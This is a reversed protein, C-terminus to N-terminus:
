LFFGIWVYLLDANLINMNSGDRSFGLRILMFSAADFKWGMGAKMGFIGLFMIVGIDIATDTALYSHDKYWDVPENIMVPIIIM